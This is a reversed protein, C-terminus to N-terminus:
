FIPFVIEPENGLWSQYSFFCRDLWKRYKHNRRHTWHIGNRWSVTIDRVSIDRVSIDRVTPCPLFYPKINIFYYYNPCFIDQGFNWYRKLNRNKPPYVRKKYSGTFKPRPENNRIYKQTRLKTRFYFDNKSLCLSYM